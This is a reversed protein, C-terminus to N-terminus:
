LRQFVGFLKAYFQQDFGAGNDAVSYILEYDKVAGTVTVLPSPRKSSYKLANSLLNAWVQKLLARDGRAQPLAGIVCTAAGDRLEEWAEAALKSMDVPVPHLAQRGLMSFALLDDILTG